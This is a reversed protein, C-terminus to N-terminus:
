INLTRLSKFSPSGNSYNWCFNTIAEAEPDLAVQDRLEEVRIPMEYDVFRRTTRILHPMDLSTRPDNMLRRIIPFIYLCFSTNQLNRAIIYRAAEDLYLAILTKRYGQTGRLLGTKDWIRVLEETSSPPTRYLDFLFQM